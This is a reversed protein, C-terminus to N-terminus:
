KKRERNVFGAKKLMRRPNNLFVDRIDAPRLGVARAARGFAALEEYMFFTLKEAEAGAVERMHPDVAVNGYLGKPVINVYFGKECVRRARMRLIPLDSGFLVRKPGVTELLKRFVLANSSASFDFNMRRTKALIKFADGVDEPCYARGVHAIILQLNPYRAEIELMQALNVPDRLRGNRPIHLMVIWGHRNMVELHHHPFFDFIRIEATPLYDPAMTLYCKIGLFGGSRVRSEVEAASLCPDSFFLAPFGHRRAADAVYANAADFYEKTLSAFMMPTVSKDPFMLKYTEILHEVPNEAAVMSPWAVTRQAKAVSQQKQFKKLWVHTHVDIFEDPLWGAINKNKLRRDVDNVEFLPKKKM